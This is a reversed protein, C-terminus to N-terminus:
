LLFCINVTGAPVAPQLRSRASVYSESKIAVDPFAKPNSPWMDGGLIDFVDGFSSAGGFCDIYNM